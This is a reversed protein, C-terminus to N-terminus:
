TRLVTNFNSFFIATWLKQVKQPKGTRCQLIQMALVVWERNEIKEVCNLLYREMCCQKLEYIMWLDDQLQSYYRNKKLFLLYLAMPFINGLIM